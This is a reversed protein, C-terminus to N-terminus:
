RDTAGGIVPTLNTKVRPQSMIRSELKGFEKRLDPHSPPIIEM